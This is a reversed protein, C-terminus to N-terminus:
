FWYVFTKKKKYSFDFIDTGIIKKIHKSRQLRKSIEMSGCGYDLIVIKKNKMKYSYGKSIQQLKKSIRTLRDGKFVKRVITSFFILSNNFYTNNQNNFRIM